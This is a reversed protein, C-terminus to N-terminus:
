GEVVLFRGDPLEFVECAERIEEDSMGSADLNELFYRKMERFNSFVQAMCDDLFERAEQPTDAVPEDFLKGQKKLFTEVCMQDYEM